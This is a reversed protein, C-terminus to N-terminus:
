CGCENMSDSALEDIILVTKAYRSRAYETSSLMVIHTCDPRMM